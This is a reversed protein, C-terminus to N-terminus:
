RLAITYDRLVNAELQLEELRNSLVDGISILGILQGAASVPLHRIRRTTMVRAVGFLSDAPSCTIVTRTMIFSVPMELLSCGHVSLGRVVDRESVIGELRGAPSMIVMAGVNEQTLRKSVFQVTDTPNVSKIVSGKSELIDSVQMVVSRNSKGFSMGNAHIAKLVGLLREGTGADTERKRIPLLDELDDAVAQAEYLGGNLATEGIVAISTAGVAAAAALGDSSSELVLCESPPVGLMAIVHRLQREVAAPEPSGAGLVCDPRGDESLRAACLNRATETAASAIVATKIGCAAVVPLLDALGWGLQLEKSALRIEACTRIRKHMVEFLTHLDNTQKLPYLHDTAYALFRRKGVDSGFHRAFEDISIRHALGAEAFVDNVTARFHESTEFMVGELRIILAGLTM